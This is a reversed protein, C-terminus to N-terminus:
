TEFTLTRSLPRTRFMVDPEAFDCESIANTTLINSAQHIIFPNPNAYCSGPLQDSTQRELVLLMASCPIEVTQQTLTDFEPSAECLLEFLTDENIPCKNDDLLSEGDLMFSANQSLRELLIQLQM